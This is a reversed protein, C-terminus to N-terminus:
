TASTVDINATKGLFNECCLPATTLSIGSYLDATLGWVLCAANPFTFRTPSVTGVSFGQGSM